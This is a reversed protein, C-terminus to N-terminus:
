IINYKLICVTGSTPLGPEKMIERICEQIDSVFKDAVGEATHQVTICMHFGSPFQLVNLNWGRENLASSLRYIDFVKSGVAIVSVDPQGIIYIEEIERLRFFVFTQILFYVINHM